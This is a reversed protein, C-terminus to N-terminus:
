LTHNFAYDRIGNSEFLAGTDPLLWLLAAGGKSPIGSRNHFINRPLKSTFSIVSLHFVDFKM